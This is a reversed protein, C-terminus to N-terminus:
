LKKGKLKGEKQLRRIRSKASNSLQKDGIEGKEFKYDELTIEKRNKCIDKFEEYREQRNGKLYVGEMLTHNLKEAQIPDVWERIGNLRLGDNEILLDPYTILLENIFEGALEENEFFRHFVNKPGVFKSLNKFKSPNGIKFFELKVM